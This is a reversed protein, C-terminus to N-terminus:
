QKKLPDFDLATAGEAYTEKVLDFLFSVKVDKVRAKAGGQKSYIHHRRMQDLYFRMEEDTDPLQIAVLEALLDSAEASVLAQTRPDKLQVLQLASTMDTPMEPRNQPDGNHDKFIQKRLAERRADAEVLLPGTAHIIDQPSLPPRFGEWCDHLVNALYAERDATLYEGLKYLVHARLKHCHPNVPNLLIARDIATLSESYRELRYLCLCLLRHIESSNPHRECAAIINFLGSKPDSKARDTLYNYYMNRYLFDFSDKEIAPDDHQFDMSVARKEQEKQRRLQEALMPYDLALLRIEEAEQIRNANLISRSTEDNPDMGDVVGTKRSNPSTLSSNNNNQIQSSSSSSISPSSTMKNEQDLNEASESGDQLMLMQASEQHRRDSELKLTAKHADYFRFSEEAVGFAESTRGISRLSGYLTCSLEFQLAGTKDIVTAVESGVIAKLV